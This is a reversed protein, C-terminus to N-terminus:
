DSSTDDMGANPTYSQLVTGKYLYGGVNFRRLTVLGTYGSPRVNGVFEVGISCTPDTITVIPGLMSGQTQTYLVARSNDPSPPESTRMSITVTVVSLKKKALTRGPARQPQAVLIVNAADSSETIGVVTVIQSQTIIRSTTGDSFTASG